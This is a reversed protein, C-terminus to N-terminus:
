GRDRRSHGNSKGPSATRADQCFDCDCEELHRWGSHIPQEDGHLSSPRLNMAIHTTQDGSLPSSLVVRLLRGESFLYHHVPHWALRDAQRVQDLTLM